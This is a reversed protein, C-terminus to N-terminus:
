IKARMTLNEVWPSIDSSFRGFKGLTHSV